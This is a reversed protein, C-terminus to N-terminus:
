ADIEYSIKVYREPEKEDTIGKKITVLYYDEGTKKVYKYAYTFSDVSYWNSNEVEDRLREVEELTDVRYVETNKLLYKM